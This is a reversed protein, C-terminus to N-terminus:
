IWPVGYCNASSQPEVDWPNFAHETNSLLLGSGFGPEHFFHEPFGAQQAFDIAGYPFLNDIGAPDFNLAELANLQPTTSQQDIVSSIVQIIDELDDAIRRAAQLYIALDQLM